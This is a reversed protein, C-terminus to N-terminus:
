PSSAESPGRTMDTLDSVISPDFSKQRIIRLNAETGEELVRGGGMGGQVVVNLGSNNIKLDFFQM